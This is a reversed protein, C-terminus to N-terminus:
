HHPANKEIKVSYPEGPHGNYRQVVCIGDVCPILAIIQGKTEIWDIKSPYAAEAYSVSYSAIEAIHPLHMPNYNITLM